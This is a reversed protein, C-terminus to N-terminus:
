LQISTAKAVLQASAIITATSAKGKCIFLNFVNLRWNPINIQGSVSITDNAYGLYQLAADIVTYVAATVPISVIQSGPDITLGNTSLGADILIYGVTTSTGAAGQLAKVAALKDAPLAPVNAIASILKGTVATVANATGQAIAQQRTAAFSPVSMVGLTLLAAVLVALYTCKRM